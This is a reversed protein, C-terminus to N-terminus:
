WLWYTNEPNMSITASYVPTVQNSFYILSAASMILQLVIVSVSLSMVPATQPM